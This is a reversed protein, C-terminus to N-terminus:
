GCVQSAVRVGHGPRKEGTFPLRRSTTWYDGPPVQPYRRDLIAALERDLNGFASRLADELAPAPRPRFHGAVSLLVYGCLERIGPWPRV